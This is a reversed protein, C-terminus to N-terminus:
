VLQERRGQVVLVWDRLESIDTSRPLQGDTVTFGRGIIPSAFPVVTAAPLGYCQRHFGLVLSQHFRAINSLTSLSIGAAEAEDNILVADVGASVLSKGIATVAEAAEQESTDFHAVLNSPGPLHAVLAVSDGLSSRLRRTAELAVSLQESTTLSGIGSCGSLLIDPSTVPVGDPEVAEVLDRIANALQTPDLVFGESDREQIRGAVHLALPVAVAVADSGNILSRLLQRGLRGSTM